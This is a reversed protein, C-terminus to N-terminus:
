PHAIQQPPLLTKLQHHCNCIQWQIQNIFTIYRVLVPTLTTLSTKLQRFKLKQINLVMRNQNIRNRSQTRNRYNKTKDNLSSLKSGFFFLNLIIFQLRFLQM